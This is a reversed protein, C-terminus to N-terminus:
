PLKNTIIPTMYDDACALNRVVNTISAEGPEAVRFRTVLLLSDDSDFHYADEDLDPVSATYSIMGEGRDSLIKEWDLTSAFGAYDPAPAQQGNVTAAATMCLMMIIILICLLRKVYRM